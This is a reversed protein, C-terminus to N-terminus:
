RGDELADLVAREVIDISRRRPKKIRSATIMHSRRRIKDKGVSRGRKRGYISCITRKHMDRMKTVDRCWSQRNGINVLNGLESM